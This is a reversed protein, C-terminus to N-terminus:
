RDAFAKARERLLFKQIKGTATRPMEEVIELREPWYAKALQQAALHRKLGDLDLSAGDVLHVFCCAREGLRPDPMAVVAADLVTELKYIANEVEVVPINEGGRIIIDKKRGTIRVYGEADIRALDGTDFWGEADVDYLEPRKIYGIFLAAGRFEFTGEVGPPLPQRNEDVVRIEQGPLPHGDSELVKYGSLETCTLIGCETMGWGGVVTSKLKNQAAAVIPPPIPAGSTVFLRFGSLDAQEIGPLHALDALFPTAAFTYTVGHEVMLDRATEPDWVDQLILPAGILLSVLIGYEYGVQHGLPSPMFVVDTEGLRMREIFTLTPGILTNSTHVVGKPEGTTGSTFLLQTPDDPGTLCDRGDGPAPEALCRAEFSEEGEGGILLVHELTDVEHRLQRALAGHDFSRFVTPAILVKAECHAVMFALERHRFIPMLPNNVAGVRTCALVLALFQWWNPLQYAVIDGHGVGLAKLGAAIKTVERDLEAYTFATLGGTDARHAIVAPADPKERVWRDFYDIIVKDPWIGRRREEARRKEDLFLGDMAVWG